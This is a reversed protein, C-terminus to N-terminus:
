QEEPTQPPERWSLGIYDGTTPYFPPPCICLRPDYIYNKTYGSVKQNTTSNFTGIPGREDQIIGGYVTLTGKAPPSSWNEVYLSDDMAMISALITLDYPATQPIIVDREAIIGLMDTSEPNTRPDTNYLLNDSIIVNRNTGVSIRGNVTGSITLDGGTVFLAGNAPMPMNENDWNEHPCTVNMTGNAQFVITAPGTIHMGEQVAATRLDVAKSPLPLPEAGLQVGEAFTPNDDPPGGHLYNIYNDVSTVLDNFVPDGSINYHGNTHTPGTLLDGTVFYVAYRDGYWRFTETDTLWVYRAFSDVQVVYELQRRSNGSQGLSIIKYKKLYTTPNDNYPDIIVNYTGTEISPGAPLDFPVTGAPPSGQSRLWNLAYDIGSEAAYFAAVSNKDSEAARWESVSRAVYAAVLILLVAIVFYSAILMFGKRDKSM